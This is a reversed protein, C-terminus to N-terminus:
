MCLKTERTPESCCPQDGEALSLNGQVQSTEELICAAHLPGKLYGLVSKVEQMM